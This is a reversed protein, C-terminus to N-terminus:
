EKFTTIVPISPKTYKGRTKGLGKGVVADRERKQAAKTVKKAPEPEKELQFTRTGIENKIVKVM